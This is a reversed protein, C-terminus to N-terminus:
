LLCNSTSVAIWVSLLGLVSRKRRRRKRSRSRSREEREKGVKFEERGKELKGEEGDDDDLLEGEGKM